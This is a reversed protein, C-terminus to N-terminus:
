FIVREAAEAPLRGHLLATTGIRNEAVPAMLALCQSAPDVGVVSPLPDGMRCYENPHARVMSGMVQQVKQEQHQRIRQVAAAAQEAINPLPFNNNGRTSGGGGGAAQPQQASCASLLLSAALVLSVVSFCCSSPARSMLFFCAGEKTFVAAGGSDHIRGRRRQKRHHDTSLLKHSHIATSTDAAFAAPSLRPPRSALTLISHCVVPRRPGAGASRRDAAAPPPGCRAAVDTVDM